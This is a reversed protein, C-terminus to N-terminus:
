ADEIKWKNNFEDILAEIKLIIILEKKMRYRLKNLNKFKNIVKKFFM